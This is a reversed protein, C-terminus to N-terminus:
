LQKDLQAAMPRAFADTGGGPAFPVVFMIPKQPWAQAYLNTSALRLGALAALSM